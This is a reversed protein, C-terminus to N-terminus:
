ARIGALDNFYYIPSALLDIKFIKGSSLKSFNRMLIILKAEWWFKSIIAYVTFM